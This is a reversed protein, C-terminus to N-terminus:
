NLMARPTLYEFVDPVIYYLNNPNITGLEKVKDAFKDHDFMERLEFLSNDLYVIRGQELSEKYFNLYDEDEFTLHVLCYDYDNFHRSEDLLCKPCEHSVKIM